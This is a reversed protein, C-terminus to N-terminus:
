GPLHHAIGSSACGGNKCGGICRRDPRRTRPHPGRRSRAFRGAPTGNRRQDPHEAGRFGFVPGAWADTISPSGLATANWVAFPLGPHHPHLPCQVGSLQGAGHLLGTFTNGSQFPVEDSLATEIIGPGNGLARMLGERAAPAINSMGSIVVVHSRNFGLDLERVFNIQRFVVIAAVGLGISVAFQGLVLASRFAGSGTQATDSSRLTEAPRFRSLVLAPYAGGLLGLGVTGGVIAALLKWDALYQM